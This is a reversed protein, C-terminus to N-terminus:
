GLFSDLYRRKSILAVVAFDNDAAAAVGGGVTINEIDDGSEAPTAGTGATELGDATEDPLGLRQVQYTGAPLNAFVFDGNADTTAQVPTTLDGGTLQMIVGAEGPEGADQVGDRNTDLFVTGTIQNIAEDITTVATRDNNPDTETTTTTATATNTVSGTVGADITANIILQITADDILDGANFTVVQGTASTGTASLAVGGPGTGSVFTVGIPLTDTVVVSEATSPGDNTVDITYVLTEGRQAISQDVNKVVTLEARPTVTFSEPEANNTTTDTEGADAVLSGTNTLTGSTNADVTAVVQLVRSETPGLDFSPFVIVGGTTSTPTVAVGGSTASVFTLGTPLTDTVIIGTATSPSLGDDAETGDDNTDHSVLLNFRVTDGPGFNANTIVNDNADVITKDIELDFAPAVPVTEDDTNNDVIVNNVINELETVGPVEVRAINSLGTTVDDDVTATITFSQTTGVPISAYEVTVARTTTDFNQTTAGPANLTVGTLGVPLVDTVDVNVADSLSDVDHSIDITYVVTSAGPTATTVTAGNTTIVATKTLALDLRPAPTMNETAMNNGTITEPDTTSIMAVNPIQAFQDSGIGVEFTFVVDDTTIGPDDVDLDPVNFTLTQGSVSALTVGSTGADFSGAVYTLGADLTDTITVGQAQSPGLNSATIQYTVFGGAVPTFPATTNVLDDTDDGDTRDDPTRTAVVAKAVAVDVDRVVATDTDTATVDPANDATATVSNVLPSNVADFAPDILVTIEVTESERNAPVADGALTGATIRVDGFNPDLADTILAVTGAGVTFAGSVFTVGTPLTDIATVNTADDDSENSIVITYTVQTGATATTLGDTKTVGLTALPVDLPALSNNNLLPDDDLTGGTNDSNTPDSDVEVEFGSVVAENTPDATINADIDTFVRYTTSAGAALAGIDFSRIDRGLGGVETSQTTPVNTTAPSPGEVRNFTLGAPIFDDVSVNTADLPGLNEIVLDFFATGGAVLNTQGAGLSKTIRLDVTPVVGFDVTTNGNVGNGDAPTDPEGDIELTIPGSVMGIGTVLIGDSDTNDDGDANTYGVGRTSPLYGFLPEAAGFQSEPIVVAYTGPRLPVVGTGYDATTFEYAGTTAGGTITTTAIPTDTPDVADNLDTLQYLEVEIENGPQAPFDPEGADRTANNQDAQTTGGGNDLFVEGGLTMPQTVIANALVENSSESRLVSVNVDLNTAGGGANSNVGDIFAEIAGVNTYDPTGTAVFSSFPVFIDEDTNGGVLDINATGFDTASTYVTVILGDTAVQDSSVRIMLGAASDGASLNVGGLGTADLDLADDTVDDADVGDYQVLLTAQVNGNQFSLFNNMSDVRFISSDGTGTILDIQVDREEGLVAGGSALDGSQSIEVEGATDESIPQSPQDITFDDIGQALVGTDATVAVPTDGPLILGSLDPGGAADLFRLVYLGSDTNNAAPPADVDNGDLNTFRYTGTVGTAPSTQLLTDGGDIAGDDNVDLWLQVEVGELPTEAGNLDMSGDADIFAVGSIAGLDSALLERKALSQVSLRRRNRGRRGSRGHGSSPRKGSLREMLRQWVM